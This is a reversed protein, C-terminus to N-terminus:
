KGARRKRRMEFARSRTAIFATYSTGPPIKHWANNCDVCWINCIDSAVPREFCVVCLKSVQSM